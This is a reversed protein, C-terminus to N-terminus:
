KRLRRILDHRRRLLLEFPRANSRAPLIRATFPRAAVVQSAVRFIRFRDRWARSFIESLFAMRRSPSSVRLRRAFQDFQRGSASAKIVDTARGITSAGAFHNQGADGRFIVIQAHHQRVRRQVMQQEGRARGFNQHHGARITRALRDGILVVVRYAMEGGDRITEQDAFPGNGAAHVIGNSADPTKPGRNKTARASISRAGRGRKWAIARDECEARIQLIGDREDHVTLSEDALM